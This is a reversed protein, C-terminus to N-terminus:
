SALTKSYMTFLCLMVPIFLRLALDHLDPMPCREWFPFAEPWREQQHVTVGLSFVLIRATAREPM